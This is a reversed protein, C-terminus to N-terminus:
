PELRLWIAIWPVAYAVFHDWSGPETLDPHLHLSDSVRELCFGLSLLSNLTEALGHRYTIPGEIAGHIRNYVWDPDQEARPEGSVYPFRMLYGEGTWDQVSMGVTFPNPLVVFYVGNQKLVRRVQKFVSSADPVFAISYPQFVIDFEGEDFISLDRMDGQEARLSLGRDAATVKDLWVQEHSLDLVSVDAGCLAFAISQQGGGSALCLVRQGALSGLQFPAVRKAAEELSIDSWPRCFLADAKTLKQWRRANYIAVDDV